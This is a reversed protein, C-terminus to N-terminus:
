GNLRRRRKAALEARRAYIQPEAKALTDNPM